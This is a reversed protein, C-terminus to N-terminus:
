EAAVSVPEPEENKAHALVARIKDDRSTEARRQHFNIAEFEGQCYVIAHRSKKEEHRQIAREYTQFYRRAVSPWAMESTYATARRQM